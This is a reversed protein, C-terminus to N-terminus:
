DPYMFPIIVLVRPGWLGRIRLRKICGSPDSLLVTMRPVPPTHALIGTM